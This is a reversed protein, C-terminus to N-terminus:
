GRRSPGHLNGLHWLLVVHWNGEMSALSIPMGSRLVFGSIAWPGVLVGWPRENPRFPKDWSGGPSEGAWRRGPPRSRFISRARAWAGARDYPCWDIPRHPMLFTVIKLGPDGTITSRHAILTCVVGATNVNTQNPRSRASEPGVHFSGGVCM